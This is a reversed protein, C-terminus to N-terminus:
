GRRPLTARCASAGTAHARSSTSQASEGARRSSHVVAVASALFALLAGAALLRRRREPYGQAPAVQPHRQLGELRQPAAHMIWRLQQNLARGISDKLIMCRAAHVPYKRPPLVLQPANETFNFNSQM